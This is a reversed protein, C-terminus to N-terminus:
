VRESLWQRTLQLAENLAPTPGQFPHVAQFTHNGGKVLHWPIDPRVSILRSSGERLRELDEEGQILVVPVEADRARSVIDFRRANAEIDDWIQKDLPMQQGTRANAVFGRGTLLMQEKVDSDFIDPHTIGNWSVVGAIAESHDFAYILAVGAGRSHGFLFVPQKRVRCEEPLEGSRVAKVLFDLDELERSYTNKAFRELETFQQPSDGIGNHTFNFLIVDLWESLQDGAYPFFSWDKFGKFGHCLLLTGKAESRSPYYEAQIVRDNNMPLSFLISM